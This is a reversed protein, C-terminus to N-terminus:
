GDSPSDQVKTRKQIVKVARGHAMPVLVSWGNSKRVSHRQYSTLRTREDCLRVKRREVEPVCVQGNEHIARM